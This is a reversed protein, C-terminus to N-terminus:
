VEPEYSAECNERRKQKEGTVDSLQQMQGENKQGKAESLKIFWVPSLGGKLGAFSQFHLRLDGGRQYVVGYELRIWVSQALNPHLPATLNGM